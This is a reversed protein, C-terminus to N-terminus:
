HETLIPEGKSWELFGNFLPYFLPEDLGTWIFATNELLLVTEGSEADIVKLQASFTFHGMFQVHPQVILFPGIQRELEHLALLDHVNTIKDTLNRKIILHELDSKRMVETFVGMNKFSEFLFDNFKAGDADYTAIYVLAKYKELFPKNIKIGDASIKSGTSFVGAADVKSPKFTTSCGAFFQTALILTFLRIVMFRNKINAIQFIICM